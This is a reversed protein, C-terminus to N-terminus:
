HAARLCWGGSASSRISSAAWLSAPAQSTCSRVACAGKFETLLSCCSGAPCPPARRTCGHAVSPSRPAGNPSGSAAGQFLPSSCLQLVPADVNCNVTSIAYVHFRGKATRRLQASYAFSRSPPSVWCWCSIQCSPAWCPPLCWRTCGEGCRRCASCAAVACVPTASLPSPDPPAPELLPPPPAQRTHRAQQHQRKTGADSLGLAVM